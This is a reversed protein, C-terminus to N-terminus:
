KSQKTGGEEEKALRRRASRKRGTQRTRPADGEDNGIPTRVEGTLIRGRKHPETRQTSDQLQVWCVPWALGCRKRHPSTDAASSQHPAACLESPM